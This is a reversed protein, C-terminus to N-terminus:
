YITLLRNASQKVTSEAALEATQSWLRWPAASSVLNTENFLWAEQGDQAIEMRFPAEIPPGFLVVSLTNRGAYLWRTVDYTFGDESPNVGEFAPQTVAFTNVSVM